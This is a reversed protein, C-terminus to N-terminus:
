TALHGKETAKVARLERRNDNNDSELDVKTDRERTPVRELVEGNLGKQPPPASQPTM